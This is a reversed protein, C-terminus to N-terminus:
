GILEGRALDGREFGTLLELGHLRDSLVSTHAPLNAFADGFSQTGQAFLSLLEALGLDTVEGHGHDGPLDHAVVDDLDAPVHHTVEYTDWEQENTKRHDGPTVTACARAVSHESSTSFAEEEECFLGVVFGVRVCVVHTCPGDAVEDGQSGDGEDSAEHDESRVWANACM